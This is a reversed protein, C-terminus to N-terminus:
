RARHRDRRWYRSRPRYPPNNVWANWLMLYGGAFFLLGYLFDFLATPLMFPMRWDELGSSWLLLAGAVWSTGLVAAGFRQFGNLRMSGNILTGQFYAGNPIQAMPDINRQRQWLQREWQERTLM